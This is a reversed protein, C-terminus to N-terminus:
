EAVAPLEVPGDEHTELAVDITQSRARTGCVTPRVRLQLAGVAARTAAANPAIRMGVISSRRAALDREAIPQRADGSPLSADVPQERQEIIRVDAQADLKRMERRAPAGM